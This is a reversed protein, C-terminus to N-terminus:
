TADLTSDVNEIIDVTVGGPCAIMFHRQGWEETKPQLIIDVNQGRINNFAEDVNEVEFSFV